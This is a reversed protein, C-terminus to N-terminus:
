RLSRRRSADAIRQALADREAGAKDRRLAAAEEPLLCGLSRAATLAMAFIARINTYGPASWYAGFMADVVDAESAPKTEDTM